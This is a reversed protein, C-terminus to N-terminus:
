THLVYALGWRLNRLARSSRTGVQTLAMVGPCIDRIVPWSGLPMGPCQAGQSDQNLNWVTSDSSM